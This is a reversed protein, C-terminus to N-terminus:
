AFRQRDYNSDDLAALRLFWRYEFHCNAKQAVRIAGAMEEICYGFKGNPHFILHRPGSESNTQLRGVFYM